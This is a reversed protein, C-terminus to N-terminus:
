ERRWNPRNRALFRTLALGLLGALSVISGLARADAGGFVVILAGVWAVLSFFFFVGLTWDLVRKLVVPV